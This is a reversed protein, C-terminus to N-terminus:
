QLVKLLLEHSIKVKKKFNFYVILYNLIGIGLALSAYLYVKHELGFFLSLLILLISWFVLFMRTSYLLRYKIFLICGKSTPEIKGIILPIYNDPRRVKQIIKFTTPKIWGNFTKEPQDGQTDLHLSIRLIVKEYSYPLVLTEEKAPILIM